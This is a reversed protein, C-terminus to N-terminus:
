PRKKGLSPLGGQVYNAEPLKLKNLRSKRRPQYDPNSKLIIDRPKCSEKHEDYNSYPVFEECNKCRTGFAGKVLKSESM